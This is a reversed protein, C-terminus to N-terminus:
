EIWPPLSHIVFFSSSRGGERDKQYSNHVHIPSIGHEYYNYMYLYLTHMSAYLIIAM